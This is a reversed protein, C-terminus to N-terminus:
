RGAAAAQSAVGALEERELALYLHHVNQRHLEPYGDWAAYAPLDAAATTAALSLGAAYRRRVEATVELLYARLRAIVEPGGVPGRGPVIRRVPLAALRDLAAGWSGLDADRLTPLHGALVVGGAFLTGSAPDFVALEGPLSAWGLDLVTVQRGGLDVTFSGEAAGEGLRDPVPVRSGAMAAEGQSVRARELCSACRQAILEATARTASVAIGAEQLASAGFLFEPGAHSLLALKVPRDTVRRLAALVERGQRHSAGSDILLAADRGVLLGVNGAEGGPASASLAAGDYHYVGPSLAAFGGAELTGSLLLLLVLVALRLAAHRSGARREM